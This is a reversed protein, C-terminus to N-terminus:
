ASVFHSLLNMWLGDAHAVDVLPLRVLKVLSVEGLIERLIDADALVDGVLESVRTQRVDRDPLVGVLELDVDV